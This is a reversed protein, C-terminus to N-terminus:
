LLIVYINGIVKSAEYEYDTSSSGTPFLDDIDDYEDDSSLVIVENPEEFSKRSMVTKERKPSPSRSTLTPKTFVKLERPKREVPTYYPIPDIARKKQPPPSHYSDSAFSFPIHFRRKKGTLSVSPISPSKQYSRNKQSKNKAKPPDPSTFPFRSRLWSSIVEM